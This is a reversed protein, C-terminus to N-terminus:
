LEGAIPLSAPVDPYALCLMLKVVAAEPTMRTTHAGVELAISGSRYLEPALPGRVCQSTLYVELGAARQARLWPLWGSGRQDPMNGVGLAELVIGAVGRAVL